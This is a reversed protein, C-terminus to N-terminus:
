EMIIKFNINESTGSDVDLDITNVYEFVPSKNSNLRKHLGYFNIDFDVSVNADIIYKNPGLHYYLDSNYGNNPETNVSCILYRASPIVIAKAYTYGTGGTISVNTLVGAVTTFEADAGVGDGIIKIDLYDYNKGNTFSVLNVSGDKISVDILATDEQKHEINTIVLIDDNKYNYGGNSVLIDSIKGSSQETEVVYKLNSGSLFSYDNYFTSFSSIVDESQDIIKISQVCGTTPIDEQKKISYFNDGYDYDIDTIYKWVYNDDLIINTKTKGTPSIMSVTGPSSLCVYVCNDNILFTNNTYVQNPTYTLLTVAHIVNNYSLDLTKLTNKNGYSLQYNDVLIKSIDNNLLKLM